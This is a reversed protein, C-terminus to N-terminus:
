STGPTPRMLAVAAVCGEAAINPMDGETERLGHSLVRGHWTVGTWVMEAAGSGFSVADTAAASELRAIHEPCGSIGRDNCPATTGTVGANDPKKCFGACFDDESIGGEAVTKHNALSAIGSDTNASALM